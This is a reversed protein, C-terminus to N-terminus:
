PLLCAAEEVSRVFGAVGGISEIMHIHSQQKLERETRPSKWSPRKVELAFPRGDRLFGWYDTLTFDPPSRLIKFFWIPVGRGDFAAGSNQRIALLVQPHFHLLEGVAALVPAESDEPDPAVRQRKEPIVAQCKPEVGRMAALGRDYANNKALVDRLPPKFGPRRVERAGPM